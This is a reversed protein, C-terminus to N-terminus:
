KGEKAKIEYGIYKPMDDMYDLVEKLAKRKAIMLAKSSKDKWGDKISWDVFLRDLCLEIAEVLVKTDDIEPTSCNTRHWEGSPMIRELVEIVFESDKM